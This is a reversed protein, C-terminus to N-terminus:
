RRRSHEFARKLAKGWWKRLTREVDTAARRVAEDTSNRSAIAVTLVRWALHAKRDAVALQALTVLEDPRTHAHSLMAQLLPEVIGTLLCPLSGIGAIDHFHFGRVRSLETPKPQYLFHPSAGLRAFILLNTTTEDSDVVIPRSALHSLVVWPQVNGILEEDMGEGFCLRIPGDKALLDGRAGETLRSMTPEQQLLHPIAVDLVAPDKEAARIIGAALAVEGLPVILSM